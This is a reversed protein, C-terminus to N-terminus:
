IWKIDGKVPKNLQSHTTNPDTKLLKNILKTEQEIQKQIDELTEQRRQQVRPDPTSYRNKWVSQPHWPHKLHQTITVPNIFAKIKKAFDVDEFGHEYYEPWGQTKDFMTKTMFLNGGGEHVDWSDQGYVKQYYVTPYCVNFEDAAEIGRTLVDRNVVMDADLFLLIDGTSHSAAINRGQGISFKSGNINILTIPIHEIKNEIWDIIPWDTSKWDAIVLEINDELSISKALSKICEPFPHLTGFETDIASRNKVTICISLKKNM